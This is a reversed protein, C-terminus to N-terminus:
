VLTFAASAAALRDRQLMMLRRNATWLIAAEVRAAPFLKQAARAYLGLQVLYDQPVGAEEAPPAADSKYDVVLVRDGTVVIRDLRGALRIPKGNRTGDLAFSVEARAQASFIEALAPDALIGLAEGALAAHLDPHEPLLLPMASAAVGERLEQPVNSLHQLLAHLAVGRLRASRADYLAEGATEFVSEADAAGDIRSPSVIEREAGRRPPPPTFPAEASRDEIASGSVPAPPPLGAPFRLIPADEPGIAEAGAALAGAIAGYWSGETKGAADTAGMVHLADEARTMAVYLNRWYEAGQRQAVAERLVISRGTHDEKRSCYLLFPHGGHDAFFVTDKVAPPTGTADALVVIPAELGKAGHVTMIRVGAAKAVLDRKITIDSQRMRAVFGTLSPQESQEHALALDLFEALVEDVELGLRAHFKRLGGRAYLVHAFFEYPRDLDLRSRLGFLEDHAREAVALRSAGLAAWLTEGKSREAALGYLDDESLGFLPSRLVAALLLDDAPNLLVDALGLLDDIAIHTSVPLRDAGPSSIHADKLARVTERFIEGRKQVLILIDEPRIARGRPGLPAGSNVWDAITAAIRRAVRRPASALNELPELPWGEAPPEANEKRIVPWIDIHGGAHTRASEHIIGETGAFLAPAIEPRSCVADVGNLIGSLTRFSTRLNLRHWALGAAEARQGFLDGMAGFLRPEAGQFSYISQKPDGVAFLTKPGRAAGEGAYFDDALAAIVAWQDPNTDQSEDVLIHDIGADLKYRVWAGHAPNALLGATRAVLDDFDLLSRKRKEAEFRALIAAAIAALAASQGAIRIAKRKEVLGELRAAEAQMREALDPNAKRIAAKVFTKRAENKDTLYLALLKQPEPNAPDIAHLKDEFRTGEPDPPTIAFIAPWDSVPVLTEAIVAALLSEETEGAGIGLFGALARQAGEPDALVAELRRGGALAGGIAKEIQDDSLQTFLAAVPEALATGGRLGEAIVAERAQTLFEARTEDELVSFNVPVGAELPFRHLVAECFAHITNIKLGGPTELAHAFLSRARQLEAVAPPRGITDGLATELAADDDRAWSALIQAVRHRMEAAAAKTYTLCLITEPAAGDLLLRLVRRTLVFTKGSGANAGVWVSAQPDAATRQHAITDGPVRVPRETGSM